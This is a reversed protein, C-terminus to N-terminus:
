KNNQKRKPYAIRNHHMNIIYTQLSDRLVQLEHLTIDADDYQGAKYKAYHIEHIFKSVAEPSFDKLTRSAAEFSDCLMLIVQEKSRPKPGPYFFGDVDAPDGGDNLYKNYFYATSSTGHHCAIFEKVVSPIHYKDALSLGQSVHSIIESASEKPTLEEHYNIGTTQNEIFCMPNVTKGIDHYLAAARLLPIDADITRGVADAMNMVALSHQFTGPAKDALIRLLPNNTDTLEVLRSVSILNFIIEFLYILPYVFIILLGCLGMYMFDSLFIANFTGNVLRFAMYVFSLAAFVTASTVFQRWGRNFYTFTYVAVFGATLYMLYLQAGGQCFILIPLLCISYVPITFRRRFFAMCYLAIVPFPVLYSVSSPLKAFVGALVVSLSFLSLIFIFENSRKFIAPRSFWIFCVLVSVLILALLFNGLWLLYVPGNYGVNNEFEAKYSDLIQAIDATIIEGASVIVDGSKFTGSTPSIYDVSAKHVLQTTQKDLVLNPVILSMLDQGAKLSDICGDGFSKDLSSSVDERLSSVTHVDARLTKVARKDRQIFIVDRSENAGYEDTSMKEDPLIGKSAATNVLSIFAASLGSNDPLLSHVKHELDSYAEVSFNYYAVFTNGLKERENLLQEETKLIPFDFSAALTEYDWTGGKSYRYDFKGNGPMLVTLLIVTVICPVLIKYSDKFLKGSM